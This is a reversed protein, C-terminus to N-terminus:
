LSCNVNDPPDDLENIEDWDDVEMAEVVEVELPLEVVAEVVFDDKDDDEEDEEFLEVVVVLDLINGEGM